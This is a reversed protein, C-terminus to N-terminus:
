SALGIKLTHSGPHIVFVDSGKEYFNFCNILEEHEPKSEDLKFYQLPSQFEKGKIKDM